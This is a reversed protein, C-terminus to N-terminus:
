CRYADAYVARAGAEEDAHDQLRGGEYACGEGGLDPVEDEALPHGEAGPHAEEERGGDAQDRLPEPLLAAKGVGDAARARAEAAESVRQRGVGHDLVHAEGPREADQGDQGKDHVPAATKQRPIPVLLDARHMVREVPLEEPHGPEVQDQRPPEEGDQPIGDDDEGDRAVSRSNPKRRVLPGDHGGQEVTPVRWLVM